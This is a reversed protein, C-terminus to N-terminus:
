FGLWDLFTRWWARKQRSSLDGKGLYAIRADALRTSLVVNDASVDQPRVRGEVKVRQEEQNVTLLQEGAVVLDGGPLVARVAVTVTALLRNARQTTGGGDFDGSVGASGSISKRSDSGVGSWGVNASLNNRRQTATETSSSATSSEYVQVTLVDGVQFAKVDTALGRFAREDYLSEARATSAAFALALLTRRVSGTM